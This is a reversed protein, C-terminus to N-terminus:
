KSRKAKSKKTAAKRKPVKVKPPKKGPRGAHVKKKNKSANPTKRVPKPPAKAKDSPAIKEELIRCLILKAEDLDERIFSMEKKLDDVDTKLDDLLECVAVEDDEFTGEGEEDFEIESDDEIFDEVLDMNDSSEDPEEDFLGIETNEDHDTSTDPANDEYITGTM